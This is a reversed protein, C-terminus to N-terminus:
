NIPSASPKTHKGTPSSSTTTCGLSSSPNSPNRATTDSLIGQPASTGTSSSDSLTGFPPQANESHLVVVPPTGQNSTNSQSTSSPSKKVSLSQHIFNSIQSSTENIEEQIVETDFIEKELEAPDELITAIKQDLENLISKERALQELINNQSVFDLESPTEKAMITPAKKQTHTLHARYGTRSGQLKALTEAM